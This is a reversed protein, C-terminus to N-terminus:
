WGRARWEPLHPREAGLTTSDGHGPHLVTDDGYADFVQATLDDMLQNFDSPNTTRGPGGPFLSDGTFIHTPGDRGDLVLAISGPTHGRLGIVALDVGGVSIRDGTWVPQAAIGTQTNIASADPEGAWSRAGTAQVVSALAQVHDPHRHTTIVADLERGDIEALLRSADDAADILLLPGGADLLYANNDMSGVACKTVHVGGVTFRVPANSPSTHFAITM